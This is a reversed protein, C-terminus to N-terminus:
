YMSILQIRYRGGKRTKDDAEREQKVTVGRKFDFEEKM